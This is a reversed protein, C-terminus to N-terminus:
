RVSRARSPQISITSSSIQARRRHAADSTANERPLGAIIQADEVTRTLFGVHDFTPSAGLLGQTSIRGFTPKFGVCGCLAAPIRVSGGTDSGTAAACLARRGGGGLRRKIRRRHAGSRGSQADNRLVSQDDHRRRRARPHQDQRADRRRGARAAARDGRKRRPHPRRLAAVRRPAFAGPRSCIRTRSRFAGSAPRKQAPLARAERRALDATVTVYANLSKNM